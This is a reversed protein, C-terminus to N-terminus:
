GRKKLLVTKVFEIKLRSVPLLTGNILQLENIHDNKKLARIFRPNVIHSQHVRMFGAPILLKDFHYIGKSVTLIEADDLHLVSYNNSASVQMINALQVFRLERSLPIAITQEQGAKLHLLELLHDIQQNKSNHLQLDSAKQVAAMLDDAQIPKLLYDLASFKIARIGYKEHATTFIVGYSLNKERLQQLLTFGDEKGLEIDLFILDPSFNIILAYADTLNTAIGSVIIGPCYKDLLRSLHVQSKKEDEVVIAKM